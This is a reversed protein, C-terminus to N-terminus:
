TLQDLNIVAPKDAVVDKEHQMAKISIGARDAPKASGGIVDITRDDLIAEMSRVPCDPYLKKFAAVDETEDSYVAGLEAGANLLLRAHNYAHNHDLGVIAFRIKDGPM